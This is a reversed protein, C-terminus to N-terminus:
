GADYERGKWTVAGGTAARRASDVIIGALMLAALPHLVISLASPPTARRIVLARYIVQACVASASVGILIPHVSGAFLLAIGTAAAAIPVIGTLLLYILAAVVVPTRGLLGAYFNKTWGARIEGLSTYMRAEMLELTDLLRYRLGKAKVLRAFAMDEVISDKVAEFGGAEAYADSRVLIFQGNAICDPRALDNVRRPDSHTLIFDLIFPQLVREWFTVTELRGFWSVMVADHEAAAGLACTLAQTALTVDADIALLWEGRAEAVAQHLAHCKGKWGEPLPEGAICRVRPDGAAIEDVIAATRDSSRDDLVLVEFAPHDQALVSRVCRGIHIEEDRAPILISVLPASSTELPAFQGARIRLPSSSSRRAEGIRALWHLLALIALVTLAITM